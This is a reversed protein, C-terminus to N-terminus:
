NNIVENTLEKLTCDKYSCYYWKENELVYFYDTGIKSPLIEFFRPKDDDWEEDCEIYAEDFSTRDGQLIYNKVTEYDTGLENLLGYGVGSPYGDHHIYIFMYPFDSKSELEHLNGNEVITLTKNLDEEKLKIAVYCQTSM